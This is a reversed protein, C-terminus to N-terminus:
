ITQALWKRILFHLERTTGDKVKRSIKSCAIMIFIRCVQTLTHTLGRLIVLIEKSTPMLLTLTRTLRVAVVRGKVITQVLCILM